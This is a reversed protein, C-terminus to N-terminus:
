AAEEKSWEKPACLDKNINLKATGYRSVLREAQADALHARVENRIRQVEKTSSKITRIHERWTAFMGDVDADAVLEVPRATALRRELHARCADSGDVVPPTKTEVRRWFDSAITVLDSIMKNDRHVTFVRYDSGGILAAVDARALGTVYMEWQEQLQVYDPPAGEWEKNLWGSVNKCQLLHQWTGLWCTTEVKPDPNVVVGDPTARAWPTEVSFLSDPPVHVLAGTDDVYKQRIAPELRHGWEMAPNTEQEPIQGTKRLWVDWPSAYPNMGVISSIESAGIGQHNLTQKM